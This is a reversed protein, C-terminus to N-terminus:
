KLNQYSIFLQKVYIPLKHWCSTNYARRSSAPLAKQQGIGPQYKILLKKKRDMHMYKLKKIRKNMNAQSNHKQM